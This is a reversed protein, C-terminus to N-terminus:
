FIYTAREREIHIYSPLERLFLKILGRTHDRTVAVRVSSVDPSTKPQKASPTLQKGTAELCFLAFSREKGEEAISINATFTVAASELERRQDPQLEEAGRVM